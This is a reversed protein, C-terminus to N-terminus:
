SNKRTIYNVNGVLASFYSADINDSYGTVSAESNASEFSNVVECTEDVVHSDLIVASSKVIEGNPKITFELFVTFNDHGLREAERKRMPGHVNFWYDIQREIEQLYAEDHAMRSLINPAITLGHALESFCSVTRPMDKVRMPLGFSRLRSVVDGKGMATNLVEDFCNTTSQSIDNQQNVNCAMLNNVSQWLTAPNSGVNSIM